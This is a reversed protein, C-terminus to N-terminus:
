MGFGDEPEVYRGELRGQVMIRVVAALTEGKQLKHMAWQRELPRCGKLRRCVEDVLWEIIFEHKFKRLVAAVKPPFSTLAEDFAVQAADSLHNHEERELDEEM